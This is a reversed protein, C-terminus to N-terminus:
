DDGPFIKEAMRANTRAYGQFALTHIVKQPDPILKQFARYIEALDDDVPMRWGLPGFHQRISNIDIGTSEGSPPQRAGYELTRLRSEQHRGSRGRRDQHFGVKFVSFPVPHDAEVELSSQLAQRLDARKEAVDVSRAAKTISGRRVDESSSRAAGHHQRHHGAQREALAATARGSDPQVAKPRAGETDAM